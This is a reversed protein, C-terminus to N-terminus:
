FLLKYRIKQSMADTSTKHSDISEKVGAKCADVAASIGSQAAQVAVGIADSSSKINDTSQKIQILSGNLTDKNSEASTKAEDIKIGVSDCASTVADTATKVLGLNVNISANGEQTATKHSAIALELMDKNVIAQAKAEDVADHIAYCAGSVDTLKQSLVSSCQDVSSKVLGTSSVITDCSAKVLNVSQKCQDIATKTLNQSALQDLTATHILNCASRVLDVAQKAAETSEKVSQVFENQLLDRQHRIHITFFSSGYSANGQAHMGAEDFIELELAPYEADNTMTFPRYIPASHDVVNDEVSSWKGSHRYLDGQMPIDKFRVTWQKMDGNKFAHFDASLLACEYKNGLKIAQALAKNPSTDLGNCTLTHIEDFRDPANIVPAPNPPMPFSMKNYYVM